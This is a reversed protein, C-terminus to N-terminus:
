DIREITYDENLFLIGELATQDSISAKDVGLKDALATKAGDVLGLKAIQTEELSLEIMNVIHLVNDPSAPREVM